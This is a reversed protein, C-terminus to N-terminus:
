TNRLRNAITFGLLGLLAIGILVQFSGVLAAGGRPTYMNSVFDTLREM